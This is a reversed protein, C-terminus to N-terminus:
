APRDRSLILIKRAIRGVGQPRDSVPRTGPSKWDTMRPCTRSKIAGPHKRVLAANQIRAPMDPIM